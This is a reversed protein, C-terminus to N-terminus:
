GQLRAPQSDETTKTVFGTFTDALNSMIYNAYLFYAIVYKLGPYLILYQITLTPEGQFFCANATSSENQLLDQYFDFGILPKIDKILTENLLDNFKGANNSSIAKIAQQETITLLAM